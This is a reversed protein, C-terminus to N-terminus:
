QLLKEDIEKSLEEESRLGVLRSVEQGNRFLILTPIAEIGYRFALSDNDEVNVKGVFIKGAYKQAIKHVIPGQERCPPCWPAWFDVLAPKDGKLVLEDFNEESLEVPEAKEERTEEAEAAEAQESLAAEGGEEEVPGPAVTVEEGPLVAVKKGCGWLCVAMAILAISVVLVIARKM